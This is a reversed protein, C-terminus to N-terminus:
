NIREYSNVTYEIAGDINFVISSRTKYSNSGNTAISVLTINIVKLNQSKIPLTVEDVLVGNETEYKVVYTYDSNMVNFGGTYGNLM